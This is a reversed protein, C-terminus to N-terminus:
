SRALKITNDLFYFALVVLFASELFPSLPDTTGRALVKDWIVLKNIYVIFPLAFGARVVKPWWSGAGKTQAEVRRLALDMREEALIKAEDNEAALRDAHAQRLESALNNLGGGSVWGFVKTLLRLM